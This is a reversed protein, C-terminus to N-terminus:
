KKKYIYCTMSMSNLLIPGSSGGTRGDLQRYYKEKKWRESATPERRVLSGLAVGNHAWVGADLVAHASLRHLALGHPTAMDAFPNRPLM